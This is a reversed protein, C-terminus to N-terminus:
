RRLWATLRAVLITIIPAFAAFAVGAILLFVPGIGARALVVLLGGLALMWGTVMTAKEPLQGLLQLARTVPGRGSVEIRRLTRLAQFSLSVGVLM